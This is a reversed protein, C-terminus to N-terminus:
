HRRYERILALERQNLSIYSQPYPSRGRGRGTPARGRNNPRNSERQPTGQRSAPRTPRQRLQGRGRGGAYPMGRYPQQQNYQITPRTQVATPRQNNTNGQRHTSVGQRHTSSTSPPGMWHQAIADDNATTLSLERSKLQAEVQQREKSVLNDLKQIATQFGEGNHGYLHRVSEELALGRALESDARRSLIRSVDDLLKLANTKIADVVEARSQDPILFRPISQMGLSWSPLQSNGRLTSLHQSRLQSKASAAKAQRCQRWLGEAEAIVVRNDNNQSPAAAAIADVARKVEDRIHPIEIQSMARLATQLDIAPTLPNQLCVSNDDTIKITNTAKDAKIPAPCHTINSSYLNDNDPSNLNPYSDVGMRRRKRSPNFINIESNAKITDNLYSNSDIQSYDMIINNVSNNLIDNDHSLSTRCSHFADNINDNISSSTPLLKTNNVQILGSTSTARNTTGDEERPLDEM